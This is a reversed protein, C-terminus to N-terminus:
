TTDKLVLLNARVANFTFTSTDTCYKQNKTEIDEDYWIFSFDTSGDGYKIFIQVSDATTKDFFYSTQDFTVEDSSALTSVGLKFIGTAPCFLNTSLTPIASNVMLVGVLLLITASKITMM